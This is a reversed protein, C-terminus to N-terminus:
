AALLLKLALAVMEPSPNEWGRARASIRSQVSFGEFEFEAPSSEEEPDERKTPEEETKKTQPFVIITVGGGDSAEEPVVCEASLKAKVSFTGGVTVSEPVQVGAVLSSTAEFV